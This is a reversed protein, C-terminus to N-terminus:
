KCRLWCISSSCLLNFTKKIFLIGFTLFRTFSLSHWDAYRHSQADDQSVGWRLDVDRINVFLHEARARLEPFVFRTLLNREAHM